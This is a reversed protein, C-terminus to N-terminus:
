STAENDGNALQENIKNILTDESWSSIMTKIGLNKGLFVHEDKTLSKPDNKFRELLFAVDDSLSPGEDGTQSAPSLEQVHGGQDGPNAPDVPKIWRSEVFDVVVLEFGEDTEAEGIEVLDAVQEMTMRIAPPPVQESVKEPELGNIPEVKDLCQPNDRWGDSYLKDEGGDDLEFLKSGHEPHYLFTKNKM